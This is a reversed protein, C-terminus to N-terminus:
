KSLIKKWVSLSEALKKSITQDITDLNQLKSLIQELNPQERKHHNDHESQSRPDPMAGECSNCIFYVSECNHIAVKIKSVIVGSCSECVFKTCLNCKILDTFTSSCGECNYISLDMNKGSAKKKSPKIRFETEGKVGKPIPKMSTSQIDINEKHSLIVQDKAKLMDKYEQVNSKHESILVGFKKEYDEVTEQLKKIQDDKDGTTSKFHATMGGYELELHLHRNTIDNYKTNTAKLDAEITTLKQKCYEYLGQYYYEAGSIGDVLIDENSNKCVGKTITCVEKAEAYFGNRYVFEGGNNSSVREDGNIVNDEKLNINHM